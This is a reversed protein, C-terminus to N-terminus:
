IREYFFGCNTCKWVKRRLVLLFGVILAPISAFFFYLVIGGGVVAAAGTGVAASASSAQYANIVRNVSRQVDFSPLSNLRDAPILGDEEFDAIVAVPLGPIARLDSAAKSRAEREAQAGFESTVATGALAMLAAFVLFILSPVLICFGLAVLCGSFRFIKAHVMPQSHCKECQMM